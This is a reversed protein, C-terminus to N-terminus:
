LTLPYFMSMKARLKALNAKLRAIRVPDQVTQIKMEIERAKETYIKVKESVYGPMFLHPNDVINCEFTM